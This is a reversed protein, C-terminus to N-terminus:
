VQDIALPSAVGDSSSIASVFCSISAPLIIPIGSSSWTTIPLFCPLPGSYTEIRPKPCMSKQGISRSRSFLLLFATDVLVQKRPALVLPRQVYPRERLRPLPRRIFPLLTDAGFASPVELKLLHLPIVDHRPRLAALRHGLVKLHEATPAVPHLAVMSRKRYFPKLSPVM